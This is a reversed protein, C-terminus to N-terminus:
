DIKPIDILNNLSKSKKSLNILCYLEKTPSFHPIVFFFHVYRYNKSKSKNLDQGKGNNYIDM